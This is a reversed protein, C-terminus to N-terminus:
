ESLPEVAFLVMILYTYSPQSVLIVLGRRIFWASGHFFLFFLLFPHFQDKAAVLSINLYNGAFPFHSWEGPNNPVFTVWDAHM